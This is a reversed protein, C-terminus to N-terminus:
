LVRLPNNSLDLRALGPLQCLEAPLEALLNHSLDLETLKALQVIKLPLRTLNLQSLDLVTGRRRVCEGIRKMAEECAEHEAATM